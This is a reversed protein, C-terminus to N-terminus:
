FRYTGQIAISRDREFFAYRSKTQFFTFALPTANSYTIIEEDTLNKGILAVEWNASPDSLAIRANLKTYGDQEVAPDLTQSPNYDDTFILDLNSRLELSDGIPTFYEVSLNGSWDAVYQNTGGTYDCNGDAFDPTQGQNCQGTKFDKFEFDLFAIAGSLTVSESIRWRGDLELGQTEAEAANGVNFGVRGDFVSVQLDDFQTFFLAVNLEAAGDLLTTKAGVEFSTAEEEEFEFSGSPPPANSRVDFGGSKYGQSATAYFMVDDSMDWEGTIVPAFNSESRKDSLSHAELLFVSEYVIPAVVAQAGQLDAGDIGKIEIVRSADKDEDSYRGGVTLRMDDRINWTVQAFVSWLESDQQFARPVATDSLSGDVLLPIISNNAVSFNDNFELDSEQYYVGGIYDFDQGLDSAIRAEFSYQEYDEESALTFVNAGTFDCDCLEEYDYSNSGLIFTLTHDTLAYNATFTINETSNESFDGNSSRKFDQTNNLVSIDQGPFLGGAGAFLVQGYTLGGM